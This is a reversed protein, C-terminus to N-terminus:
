NLGMAAESGVMKSQSSTFWVTHSTDGGELAPYLVPHGSFQSGRAPVTDTESCCLAGPTM